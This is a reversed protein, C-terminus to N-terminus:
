KGAVLSAVWLLIAVIGVAAAAGQMAQILRGVWDVGTAGIAGTEASGNSTLKPLSANQTDSTPSNNLGRWCTTGGPDCEGACYSACSAATKTNSM